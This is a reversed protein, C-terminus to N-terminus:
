NRTQFETGNIQGLGIELNLGTKDLLHLEKTDCLSKGFLQRSIHGEREGHTEYLERARSFKDEKFAVAIDYSLALYGAGCFILGGM